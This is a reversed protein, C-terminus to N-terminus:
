ALAGAEVKAWVSGHVTAGPALEIRQGNVSTPADARGIVTDEGISVLGEGVLPGAMLTNAGIWATGVVVCASDLVCATGIKLRGHVKLSGHVRCEAGLEADGHVILDGDVETRPPLSLSGAVLWRGSEADLRTGPGGNFRRREATQPSERVGSQTEVRREVRLTPARARLFRAGRALLISQSATVRATVRSNSGLAVNLGHAWRSVQAGTELRLDGEAYAARAQADRGLLLDGAAYIEHRHQSHAQLTLNGAGILPRAAAETSHGPPCWQLGNQAARETADPQLLTAALPAQLAQEVRARYNDAFRTALNDHDRPVNLPAVDTPMFLERLAPALVLLLLTLLLAGTLLASM